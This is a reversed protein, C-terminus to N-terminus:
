KPPAPVEPVVPLEPAAPKSNSTPILPVSPSTEEIKALLDKLDKRFAAYKNELQDREATRKAILEDKAKLDIALRDMQDQMAKQAESAATLKKQFQDRASAAARFDDELLNLKKELTKLKDTSAASVSPDSAPRSCGWLGLLSVILVGVAQRSRFM